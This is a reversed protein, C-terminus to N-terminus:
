PNGINRGETSEALLQVVFKVALMGRYVSGFDDLSIYGTGVPDDM